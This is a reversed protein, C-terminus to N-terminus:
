WGNGSDGWCNRLNVICYNKLVWCNLLVVFGKGLKKKLNVRYILVLFWIKM